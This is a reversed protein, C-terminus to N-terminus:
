RELLAQRQDPSLSELLRLQAATPAEAAAPAAGVLSAIALSAIVLARATAVALSHRVRHAGGAGQVM